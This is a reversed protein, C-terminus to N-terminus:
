PGEAAIVPVPVIIRDAPVRKGEVTGLVDVQVRVDESALAPTTGMRLVVVDPDMFGSPAFAAFRIVGGDAGATNLVHFAENSTADSDFSLAAADFHLSGQISAAFRDHSELRLTLLATEGEMRQLLVSVRVQDPDIEVQEAGTVLGDREDCASFLITLLLVVALPRM